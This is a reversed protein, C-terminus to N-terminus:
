KWWRLYKDNADPKTLEERNEQEARLFARHIAETEMDARSACEMLCTILIGAVFGIFAAAIVWWFSMM